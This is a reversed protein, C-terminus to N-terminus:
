GIRSRPGRGGMGKWSWSGGGHQGLPDFSPQREVVDQQDRAFGVNMRVLHIDAGAQGPADPDIYRQDTGSHFRHRFAAQGDAHGLLPSDTDNVLVEADGILGPLHIEDLARFAPHDGIGDGNRRLCLHPIGLRQHFFEANGPHGNGLMPLQHPNEGIAVQAEFGIEVALHLLQHGLPPFFQDGHFGADAQLFRFLQKMLVPDFFQQHDVLMVLQHPQDGDLVDLFRPFVGVGALVRLPSQQHAARDAHRFVVQLPGGGKEVRPRVHQHHVGGVGMGLPHDPYDPLQPAFEGVRLQYATVDDGPLGGIRQDPGAHVRELYSDPGAGDARCPHHRPHAHGLQGGDMRHGRHGGLM